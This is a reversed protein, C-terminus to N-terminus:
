PILQLDKAKQVAQVRQSVQLKEYLNSLHTKVTNPSVHLAQAIEKNSQGSALQELVSYERKTIGLSNLAAENLAFAAARRDPTLVRGLWVGLATFAIGILVIYFETAFMKTMHQYELWQLAFAASALVIAYIFISRKMPVVHRFLFGNVLGLDKARTAPINANSAFIM